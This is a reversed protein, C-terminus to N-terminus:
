GSCRALSERASDLQAVGARGALFDQAQRALDTYRRVGNQIRRASPRKGFPLVTAYDANTRLWASADLATVRLASIQERTLAHSGRRLDLEYLANGLAQEAVALRAL